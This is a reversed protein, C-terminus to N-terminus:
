ILLFAANLSGQGMSNSRLALPSEIEKADRGSADDRGELPVSAVLVCADLVRAKEARGPLM